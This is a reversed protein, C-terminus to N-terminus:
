RDGDDIKTRADRRSAELHGGRHGSSSSQGVTCEVPVRALVTPGVHVPVPIVLSQQRDTPVVYPGDTASPKDNGTSSTISFPDQARAQM